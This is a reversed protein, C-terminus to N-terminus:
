RRPASSAPTGAACWCSPTTPRRRTSSTPLRQEKLQAEHWDSNSVLLAGSPAAAAANAVITLLEQLSRAHSLDIGGGGGENHFHGDAQGPSVFHGQLDVLRTGEGVYQRLEADSGVAVFRGGSIAFGQVVSDRADATYVKGNVYVTDATMAARASLPLAAALCFVM